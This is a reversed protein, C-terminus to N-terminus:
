PRPIAAGGRTVLATMGAAPRPVRKRGAVLAERLLHQRDDVLRRDLVDDLLRHPGPQVVDEHDGAAVLPRQLVVEVAGHLELQRQLGLAVLLPQVGHPVAGVQGRGSRGGPRRSPGPGRRHEGGGLVHAVLRERHQEAVVEDVVAVVQELLHDRHLGLLPPLTMASM